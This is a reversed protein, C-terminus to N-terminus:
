NKSRRKVAVVVSIAAVLGALALYPTLIELKNVPMVVGGVPRPTPTPTFQTVSGGTAVYPIQPYDQPPGVLLTSQLIFALDSQGAGKCHFTLTVLEGSGTVPQPPPSPLLQCAASVSGGTNDVTVTFFTTGGSKLFSGESASKIELLAPKFILKLQWGYLEAVDVIKITATFQTSVPVNSSPPDVYIEAPVQASAVVYNAYTSPNDMNGLNFGDLGRFVGNVNLFPCFGVTQGTSLSFDHANDADDLPHSLEFHNSSGQRAVTGQGDFTGGTDPDWAVGTYFYDAFWPIGLVVLMDDGVQHTAGAAHNNDFKFAVIDNVSLEADGEISVAMYLNTGDNMMYLTGTYGGTLPGFTATAASSWEGAQINGDITPPTSTYASLSLGSHARAEPVYAITCSASVIVAMLLVTLPLKGTTVPM